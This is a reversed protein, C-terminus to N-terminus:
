QNASAIQRFIAAAKGFHLKDGPKLFMPRSIRSGNVYIGNTSKLDEIKCGDKTIELAAHHRSVTPEELIIANDKSAGITVRGYPLPFTMGISYFEMVFGSIENNESPVPQLEQMPEPRKKRALLFCFLILLVVAGAGAVYVYKKDYGFLKVASEPVAVSFKATKTANGSTETLVFETDGAKQFPVDGLDLVIKYRDVSDKNRRNLISIISSSISLPSACYEYGGKTDDAFKKVVNLFPENKAGKDPLGVVHIVIGNEVSKKIIASTDRATGEDHGDTIVLLSKEGNNTQILSIASDITGFLETKGGGQKIMELSDVLQKKDTTFPSHLQISDNFSLIAIHHGENVHKVYDQISFKIASLYEPTLSRSTDIAILLYQQKTEQIKQIKKAQIKRDIGSVTVYADDLPLEPCKYDITLLPWDHTDVNEIVSGDAFASTLMLWLGLCSMLIKIPM